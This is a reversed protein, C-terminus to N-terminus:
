HIRTSAKEALSCAESLILYCNEKLCEAIYELHAHQGLVIPEDSDNRVQVFAMNSDVVHAYIARDGEALQQTANHYKPQFMLTQDPLETTEYLCILVKILTHFDIVLKKKTQINQQVQQNSQSTTSIPVVLGKCSNIIMIGSTFLLDIKELDLINIGILLKVKLHSVIRAEWKIYATAGMDNLLSYLWLDLSVYEHTTESGAIGNM